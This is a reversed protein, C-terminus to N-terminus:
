ELPWAQEIRLSARKPTGVLRGYLPHARTAIRRRRYDIGSFMAFDAVTRTTGLGYVGLPAGAVLDMLRRRSRLDLERWDAHQDWHLARPETGTPRDRYLHYIPMRAHHIDYGHTYLRLALSQEEGKFYMAPDYPVDLVIKGPAFLCGAAVHFGPVPAHGAEYGEFDLTADNGFVVGNQVALAVVQAHPTKVPVGDQLTFPAPYTTIVGGLTRASDILMEDWGADFDMHSDLQLFWDEGAYFSQAIARAWCPGRAYAPDVRLYTGPLKLTEGSQDVIAFRLDDPRTATALAREVTSRLLPDCYAVISVLIM